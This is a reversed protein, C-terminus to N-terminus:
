KPDCTKLFSRKQFLPGAPDTTAGFGLRLEFTLICILLSHLPVLVFLYINLTSLLPRTYVIQLTSLFAVVFLFM